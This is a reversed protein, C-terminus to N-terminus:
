TRPSGACMPVACSFCLWQRAPQSRIPRGGRGLGAWRCLLRRSLVAGGRRPRPHMPDRGDRWGGVRGCAAMRGAAGGCRSGSNTRRPARTAAFAAVLCRASAPAGLRRLALGGPQSGVAGTRVRTHRGRGGGASEEARLGCRPFPPERVGLARCLAVAEAVHLRGRERIKAADRQLDFGLVHGRGGDARLIGALMRLTTTKGGGNAGVFGCIEGARLTLTVGAVATIRGYRKSINEIAVLPEQGGLMAAIASCRRALDAM